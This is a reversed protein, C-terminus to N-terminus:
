VRAAKARARLAPGYARAIPVLHESETGAGLVRATYDLDRALGCQLWADQRATEIKSKLIPVGANASATAAFAQLDRWFDEADFDNTDAM